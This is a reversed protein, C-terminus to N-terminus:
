RLKKQQATAQNRWFKMLKSDAVIEMIETKQKKTLAQKWKEATEKSNRIINYPHEADANTNSIDQSKKIQEAIKTRFEIGLFDLLEKIKGETNNCLDEYVVIKMNNNASNLMSENALRWVWALKQHENLKEYNKSMNKSLPLFLSLPIFSPASIKELNLRSNIQACPHRIIVITKPYNLQRRMWELRMKSHVTKFGYYKSNRKIISDLYHRLRRVILYHRNHFINKLSNVATLLIERLKQDNNNENIILPISKFLSTANGPNDPESLLFIDPHSSLISRLWSTGSRPSGALILLESM